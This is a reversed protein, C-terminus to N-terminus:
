KEVAKKIAALATELSSRTKDVVVKRVIAGKFGTLGEQESSKLTMLYYGSASAAPTDGMCVSLDLATHFYHSAYLQKIAVVSVARGGAQAHYIVAHNVRITPKLGFSVHEWYFFSDAGPLTAAPYQLLYHRLEPLVDPLQASRSIMTEFQEAIRAPNKKDRYEGLAANGGRQYAGLLQLVMGRALQNVQDAADPRDWKVQNRFAEISATPLQVDCDGERCERLAKVDDADLALGRLDAATPDPPIEGVGIYGETGAVRTVDRAAKMYVDPSGNIHVAGFVFIESGHGWPLVKAVPRGQDVAAIQEPTLELQALIPPAERGAGRAGVVLTVLAVVVAAVPAARKFM